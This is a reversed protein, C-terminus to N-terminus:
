HPITGVLGFVLLPVIGVAVLMLAILVAIDRTLVCGALCASSLAFLGVAWYTVEHARWISALLGALLGTFALLGISVSIAFERM